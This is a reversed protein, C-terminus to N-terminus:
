PVQGARCRQALAPIRMDVSHDWIMARVPGWVANASDTPLPLWLGAGSADLSEHLGRLVGARDGLPELREDVVSFDGGFYAVRQQILSELDGAQVTARAGLMRGDPAVGMELLLGDRTISLTRQVLTGPKGLILFRLGAGHWDLSTVAYTLAKKGRGLRKPVWDLPPLRDAQLEHLLTVAADCLIDWSREQPGQRPAYGRCHIRLAHQSADVGLHRLPHAITLMSQPFAPPELLADIRLADMARGEIAVGGVDSAKSFGYGELHLDSQTLLDQPGDYWFRLTNPLALEGDSLQSVQYLEECGDEASFVYGVPSLCSALATHWRGGTAQCIPARQWSTSALQGADVDQTPLFERRADGHGEQHLAAGSNCAVLVCAAGGALIRKLGM